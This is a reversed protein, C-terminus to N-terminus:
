CSITRFIPPDHPCVVFSRRVNEGCFRCRSIPGDSRRRGIKPVVPLFLIRLIRDHSRAKFCDFNLKKPNREEAFIKKM